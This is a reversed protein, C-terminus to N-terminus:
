AFHTLAETRPARFPSNTHNVVPSDLSEGSARARLSRPPVAANSRSSNEPNESHLLWCLISGSCGELHWLLRKSQVEGGAGIWHHWHIAEWSRILPVLICIQFTLILIIFSFEKGGKSLLFVELGM